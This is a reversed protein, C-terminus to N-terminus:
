RAVAVKVPCTSSASHAAPNVDLRFGNHCAAHHAACLQEDNYGFLRQKRHQQQEELRRNDLFRDAAAGGCRCDL